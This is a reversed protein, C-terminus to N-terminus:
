EEDARGRRQERSDLLSIAIGGLGLGLLSWLAIEWGTRHLWAADGHDGGIWVAWFGVM